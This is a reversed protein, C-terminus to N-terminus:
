GFFTLVQIWILWHLIQLRLLCCNWETWCFQSSQLNHSCLVSHIFCWPLVLCFFWSLNSPCFPPCLWLLIIHLAHLFSFAVQYVHEDMQRIKTACYNWVATVIKHRNWKTIEEWFTVFLACCHTFSLNPTSFTEPFLLKHSSLRRGAWGRRTGFCQSGRNM